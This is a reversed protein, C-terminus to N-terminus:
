YYEKKKVTKQLYLNRGTKRFSKVVTITSLAVRMKRPIAEIGFKAGKKIAIEAFRSIHTILKRGM